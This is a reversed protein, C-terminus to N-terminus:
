ERTTSDFKAVRNSYRRTITIRSTELTLLGAPTLPRSYYESPSYYESWRTTSVSYTILLVRIRSMPALLGPLLGFNVLGGM